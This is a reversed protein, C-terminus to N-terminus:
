ISLERDLPQRLILELAGTPLFLDRVGVCSENRCNGYDKWHLCAARGFVVFHLVLSQLEEPPEAM